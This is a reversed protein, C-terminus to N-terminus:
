VNVHLQKFLMHVTCLALFVLGLHSFGLDCFVSVQNQDLGCQDTTGVSVLQIGGQSQGAPSVGLQVLDPM